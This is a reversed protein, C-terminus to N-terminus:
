KKKTSGKHENPLPESEDIEIIVDKPTMDKVKKPIKPKNKGNTPTPTSKDIEEAQSIIEALEPPPILNELADAMAATLTDLATLTCPPSHLHVPALM